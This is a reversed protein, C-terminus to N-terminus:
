DDMLAYRYEKKTLMEKKHFEIGNLMNDKGVTLSNRWERWDYWKTVTTLKSKHTYQMYNNGTTLLYRNQKTYYTYSHITYQIQLSAGKHLSQGKPTVREKHYILYYYYYYYYYYYGAIIESFNDSIITM